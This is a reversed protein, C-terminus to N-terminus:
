QLVCSSNNEDNSNLANEIIKVFVNTELAGELHDYALEGINISSLFLPISPLMNSLFPKTMADRNMIYSNLANKFRNNISSCLILGSAFTTCSQKNKYFTESRYDDGLYSYLTKTPEVEPSIDKEYLADGKDLTVEAPNISNYRLVTEYTENLKAKSVLDSIDIIKTPNRHGELEKDFDHHFNLSAQIGMTATKFAGKEKVSGRPWLSIHYKNTQLAVHGYAHGKTPEWYLVSVM